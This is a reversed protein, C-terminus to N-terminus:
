EELIAFDVDDSTKKKRKGYVNPKKIPSTITLTVCESNSNDSTETPPVPSAPTLHGAESEWDQGTQSCDITALDECREAFRAFNSVIAHNMQLVTKTFEMAQMWPWSMRKFGGADGSKGCDAKLKKRYTDRLNRWKGKSM